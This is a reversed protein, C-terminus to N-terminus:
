QGSSYLSLRSGPSIDTALGAPFDLSGQMAHITMTSGNSKGDVSYGAIHPTGIWVKNHLKSDINPENEWVDLVLRSIQGNDLGKLMARTECVEGRSSNIVVAGKKLLALKSEDM